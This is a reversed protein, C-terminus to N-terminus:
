KVKLQENLLKFIKAMDADVVSAIEIGRTKAVLKDHGGTTYIYKRNGSEDGDKSMKSSSEMIVDFGATIISYAAGQILPGRTVQGTLKDEKAKDKLCTVYKSWHRGTKKNHINLFKNLVKITGSRIKGWDLFEFRLGAENSEDGDKQKATIEESVQDTLATMQFSTFGDFFLIDPDFDYLGPFFEEPEDCFDIVEDYTQLDVNLVNKLAEPKRKQLYSIVSGLGNGGFDTSIGALKYGAEALQGIGYSKGTGSFGYVMVKFWDAVGEALSAGKKEYKKTKPGTTLKEKAVDAASKISTM